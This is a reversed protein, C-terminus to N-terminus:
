PVMSPMPVISTCHPTGYPSPWYPVSKRVIRPLLNDEYMMCSYVTWHKWSNGANGKWWGDSRRSGPTFYHSIFQWATNHGGGLIWQMLCARVSVTSLLPYQQSLRRRDKEKVDGRGLRERWHLMPLGNEGELCCLVGLKYLLGAWGSLSVAAVSLEKRKQSYRNPEIQLQWIM